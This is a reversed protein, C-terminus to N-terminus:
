PNIHNEMMFSHVAHNGSEILEAVSEGVVIQRQPDKKGTEDLTNQHSFDIMAQPNM